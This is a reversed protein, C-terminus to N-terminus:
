NGLATIVAGCERGLEDLDQRAVPSSKPKSKRIIRAVGHQEALLTEFEEFLVGM